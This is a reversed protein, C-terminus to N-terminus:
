WKSIYFQLIQIVFIFFAIIYWVQELKTLKKPLFFNNTGNKKDQFDSELSATWIFMDPMIFPVSQIKADPTFYVMQM